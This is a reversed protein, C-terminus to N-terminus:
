SFAYSVATFLKIVNAVPRFSPCKRISSGFGQTGGPRGDRPLVQLLGQERDHAPLVLQLRLAGSELFQKFLHLM